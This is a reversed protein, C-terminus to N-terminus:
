LKEELIKKGGHFGGELKLRTVGEKDEEGNGMVKNNKRKVEEVMNKENKDKWGGDGMTNEIRLDRKEEDRERKRRSNM